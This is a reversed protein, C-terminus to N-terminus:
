AATPTSDRACASVVALAVAPIATVTDAQPAGCHMYDPITGTPVSVGANRRGTRAGDAIERDFQIALLHFKGPFHGCTSEQVPAHSKESFRHGTGIL